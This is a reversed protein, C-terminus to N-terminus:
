ALSPPGRLSSVLIQSILLYHQPNGSLANDVYIVPLSEANHLEVPGSAHQFRKSINLKIKKVDTAHNIDNGPQEKNSIKQLECLPSSLMTANASGPLCFLHVIFFVAYVALSVCWRAASDYYATFLKV